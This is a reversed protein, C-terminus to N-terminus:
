LIKLLLPWYNQSARWICGLATILLLSSIEQLGRYQELWSLISVGENQFFHGHLGGNPTLGPSTLIIELGRRFTLYVRCQM